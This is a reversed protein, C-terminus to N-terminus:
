QVRPMKGQVAQECSRRVQAAIQEWSRREAYEQALGRGLRRRLEPDALLRELARSLEGPSAPEVLLGSREHEIQESIGGVRSAVVPLGQSAAAPIVGSQSASTYPLVLIDASALLSGIEEESVWRNEVEVRALGQLRAAYPRLDGAGVIRLRAHYAPNLACFADLLVGLGKYDMIRGFFLLTPSDLSKEVREDQVPYDLVGLPVADIRELAVRRQQALVPVLGQSFVLCRSSQRISWDELRAYVWGALGPHPQPDHVATVSAFEQMQAQLLPNWTYFMPFLLVDPQWTRLRAALRRVESRSVWSWLAQLPDRYTSAPLLELGSAQWARYNEGYQSVVALLQCSLNLHQALKLSILGGAGRRGLYVLAIKM